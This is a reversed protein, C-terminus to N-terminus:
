KRAANLESTLDSDCSLLLEEGIAWTVRADSRDETTYFDKSAQTMHYSSAVYTEGRKVGIGSQINRYVPDTHEIFTRYRTTRAWTNEYGSTFRKQFLRKICPNAMVIDRMKSRAHQFEGIDKLQRVNDRKMSNEMKRAAGLTRRFLDSNRIVNYSSRIRERFKDSYHSDGGSEFLRRAYNVMAVPREYLASRISRRDQGSIRVAM